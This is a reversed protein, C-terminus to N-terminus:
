RLSLSAPLFPLFPLLCLQAWPFAYPTVTGLGCMSCFGTWSLLWVKVLVGCHAAQLCATKMALEVSWKTVERSQPEEGGCWRTVSGSKMIEPLVILVEKREEVEQIKM